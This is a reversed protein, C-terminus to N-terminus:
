DKAVLPMRIHFTTGRHRESEFVIEGGHSSVVRHALALGQGTGKGVPKTTFFPDFVRDRLHEPIGAGSDAISVEILEGAQRTSVTIKGLPKIAGPETSHTEGIAQAANVLLNLFVQHMEAALCMVPPLSRDLVTSLEAVYKWEARSVAIATELIDNIDALTRTESGPHAVAKVARVIEAIRATGDLAHEVSSPLEGLFYDLEAARAASEIEAGVAAATGNTGGCLRERWVALQQLLPVLQVLAEQVFRLNDGVYQVPTNIEHAIGAALQGVAELRQGQALREELVKRETIDQATGVLRVVNGNRDCVPRGRLHVVRDEGDARVFRHDFAFSERTRSVDTFLSRLVAVDAPPVIEAVTDWTLPRDNPTAGYHRYLEPSWHATETKVDYDWSGLRAIEHAEALLARSRVLMEEAQRRETIDLAAIGIMLDADTAGPVPFKYVLWSKGEAGPRVRTEEVQATYVLVTGDDGQMAALSAAAAPFVDMLRRGAAPGFHEIIRRNAFVLEGTPRALAALVPTNNMFAQFRAESESLELQMERQEELQGRLKANREVLETSMTDLSRALLEHDLDFQTYAASVVNLLTDLGAPVAHSSGFVRRLQRELLKHRPHANYV